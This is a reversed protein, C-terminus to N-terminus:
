ATAVARGYTAVLKDLEFVDFGSFSENTGDQNTWYVVPASQYGDAALTATTREQEAHDLESVMIEDFEIGKNNLSRKLAICPQCTKNSYVLPKDYTM